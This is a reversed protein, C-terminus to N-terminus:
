RRRRLVGLVGLLGAGLALLSSPEPICKGQLDVNDVINVGTGTFGWFKLHLSLYRPQVPLLVDKSWSKWGGSDWNKIEGILEKVYNPSQPDIPGGDLMYDLYIGLHMNVDALSKQYYYFDVEVLKALGDDRWGPRGLEDVIQSLEGNPYSAGAAGVGGCYNGPSTPCKPVGYPTLGSYPLHQSLLGGGETVTWGSTLEFGPNAAENPLGLGAWAATTMFMVVIISLVTRM